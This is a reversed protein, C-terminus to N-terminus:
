QGVTIQVKTCANQLNDTGYDSVKLGLNWFETSGFPRFM